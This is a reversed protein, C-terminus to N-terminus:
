KYEFIEKTKQILKFTDLFGAIGGYEDVLIVVPVNIESAIRQILKLSKVSEPLFYVPKLNQKCDKPKKLFCKEIDDELIMGIINHISGDYVIYYNNRDINDSIVEELSLIYPLNINIDKNYVDKQIQLYNDLGVIFEDFNKFSFPIFGKSDNKSNDFVIMETLFYLAKEESLFKLNLEITKDFCEKAITYDWFSKHSFKYYGQSDRNLLSNNRLELESLEITNASAFQCLKTVHVSYNEVEDRNLLIEKAITKSFQRLDNQFKLREIEDSIINSERKIWNEIIVEFILFSYNLPQNLNVLLDLYNWLLPRLSIEPVNSVIEDIAVKKKNTLFGYKKNLFRNFEITTFNSLYLKEFEEFGKDFGFKPFNTTKPEDSESPFFQTRCTIIVFRFEQVINILENMRNRFDKKALVDEDFADLLVISNTKNAISDIKFFVKKSGLPYFSINYKKFPLQSYRFYLNILFTTKGSGTDGLVIFFRNKSEINENMVKIFYDVLNRKKRQNESIEEELLNLYKTDVYQRIIRKVYEKSFYPFLDKKVKNEKIYRYILKFLKYLLPISAFAIAILVKLIDERTLNEPNIFYKLILEQIKEAM